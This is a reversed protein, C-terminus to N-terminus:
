QQEVPEFQHSFTPIPENNLFKLACLMKADNIMADRVTPSFGFIRETFVCSIPEPRLVAGRKRNRPLTVKSVYSKENCILDEYQAIYGAQSRKGLCEKLWSSLSLSSSKRLTELHSWISTIDKATVNRLVTHNVTYNYSCICCIAVACIQNTTYAASPSRLRKELANHLEIKSPCKDFFESIVPIVDPQNDYQWNSAVRIVFKDERLIREIERIYTEM